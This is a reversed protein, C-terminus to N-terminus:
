DWSNNNQMQTAPNQDNANAPAPITTARNMWLVADNDRGNPGPIDRRFVNDIVNQTQNPVRVQRLGEPSFSRGFVVHNDNFCLNGDWEKPGGHIELTRSQLYHNGVVVFGADGSNRWQERRRVGSYLPMTAYSTNCIAALDTRFNTPDWYTPNTADAPNIARFNYNSCIIVRSNIEAPSVLIQPTFYNRAICVSYLAQNTNVTEDWEGTGQVFANGASTPVQLRRVEGPTPFLGETNEAAATLWGKHVQQIQTGDKVQRATARAKSLAPLLLGLLLAIIAMVVLLEILTFANKRNM